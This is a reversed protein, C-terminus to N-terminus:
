IRQDGPIRTEMGSRHLIERRKSWFAVRCSRDFITTQGHPPLKNWFRWMYHHQYEEPTPKVISYVRALRPDLRETVRKIAGGKGAADPGEVAIILSRKSERWFVLQGNLLELQHKKLIKKYEAQDLSKSQDLEDLEPHPDKAM